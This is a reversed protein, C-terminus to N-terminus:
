HSDTSFRSGMRAPLYSRQIPTTVPRPSPISWTTNSGKNSLEEQTRVLVNTMDATSLNPTSTAAIRVPVIPIDRAADRTPVMPTGRAADRTPVIPIDRTPVILTDRAVDRTPVIPIGRTPVIPTDRTVDRTPVIPTDRTTHRAPVIPPDRTPVIPPDRTPVITTDGTTDRTVDRALIIPTDRAPVIPTSRAADRAPVIPTDRTPVISTDMAANPTNRSPVNLDSAPVNMERKMVNGTTNDSVGCTSGGSTMLVDDIGCPSLIRRPSLPGSGSLDRFTHDLCDNTFVNSADSTPEKSYDASLSSHSTAAQIIAELRKIRSDFVRVKDKLHNNEVQLLSITERINTKPLVSLHVFLNSTTLISTKVSRLHVTRFGSRLHLIPFSFYYKMNEDVYVKILLYSKSLDMVEFQFSENFTPNTLNKNSKTRFETEKTPSIVAVTVYCKSNYKLASKIMLNWGDLVRLDLNYSRDSKKWTTDVSGDVNMLNPTSKLVYGCCNNQTFLGDNILVNNNQGSHYTLSNISVGALLYSPLDFKAEACSPYVRTLQRQTFRLHHLILFFNNKSCPVIWLLQTMRVTAMGLWWRWRWRWWKGVRSFLVFESFENMHSHFFGSVKSEDFSTCTYHSSTKRANAWSTFKTATFAIYPNLETHQESEKARLFIRKKFQSPSCDKPDKKMIEDRTVLVHTFTEKFLDAIEKRSDAKM